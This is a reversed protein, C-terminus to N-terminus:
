FYAHSQPVLSKSLMAIIIKKVHGPTILYVRKSETETLVKNSQVTLRCGKKDMNDLRELHQPINLENYLKEM